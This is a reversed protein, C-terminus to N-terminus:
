MPRRKEGGKILHLNFGALTLCYFDVEWSGTKGTSLQVSRPGNLKNKWRPCKRGYTSTVKLRPLYQKNPSNTTFGDSHSLHAKCIWSEERQAHLIMHARSITAILKVWIYIHTHPRVFPCLYLRAAAQRIPCSVM